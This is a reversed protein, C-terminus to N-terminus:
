MRLNFNILKQLEIADLTGDIQGFATPVPSGDLDTLLHLLQIIYKVNHPPDDLNHGNNPSNVTMMGSVMQDTLLGYNILEFCAKGSISHAIIVVRAYGGTQVRNLVDQIQQAYDSVLSHGNLFSNSLSIKVIGHPFSTPEVPPTLNPNLVDWENPYEISSSSLSPISFRSELEDVFNDWDGVNNPSLLVLCCKDGSTGLDGNVLSWNALDPTSPLEQLGEIFRLMESIMDRNKISNFHSSQVKEQYDFLMTRGHQQSSTNSIGDGITMYWDYDLLGEIVYQKSFDALQNKVRPSQEGLEFIVDALAVAWTGNLEREISATDIKDDTFLNFVSSLENEFVRDLGNTSNPGSPGLWLIFEVKTSKSTALEIAYPNEYTGEGTLKNPIEPYSIVPIDDVFSIPWGFGTESLNPISGRILGNVWRFFPFIFPEGGFSEDSFVTEFFERMTVLPDTFLSSWDLIPWDYPLAFPGLIPNENGPYMALWDPNRTIRFPIGDFPVDDRNLRKLLSQYISHPSLRFFTSLFYGLSGGKEMLVYSILLQVGENQILKNNPTIDIFGDVNTGDGILGFLGDRTDFGLSDTYLGIFDWNLTITYNYDIIEDNIEDYENVTFNIPSAALTNLANTFSSSQISEGNNEPRISGHPGVFSKGSWMFESLKSLPLKTGAVTAGADDSGDTTVLDNAFQVMDPAISGLRPENVSFCAGFGDGNRWDISFTFGSVTFFFDPKGFIPIPKYTNGYDDGSFKIMDQLTTSIGVKPLFAGNVPVPTNIDNSIDFDLLGVDVNADLHLHKRVKILAVQSGVGLSVRDISGSTVKSCSLYFGPISKSDGITIKYPSSTTGVGSYFDTKGSPMSPAPIGLPVALATELLKVLAEQVFLWAKVQDSGGYWAVDTDFLRTYYKTIEEIPNQVLGLLDIRMGDDRWKTNSGDHLDHRPEVLGVLSGVWTLVNSERLKDSITDLLSDLATDLADSLSSSSSLDVDGYSTGGIIVNKLIVDPDIGAGRNISVAIRFGDIKVNLDSTQGPLRIDSNILPPTSKHIDLTLSFEEFFSIPDGSGLPISIFWGQLGGEFQIDSTSHLGSGRLGLHLVPFGASDNSLAILFPCTFNSGSFLDLQLPDSRTLSGSVTNNSGLGLMSKIRNLYETAITPTALSLLWTEIRQWALSSDNALDQILQIIDLRPWPPDNPQPWGIPDALGLLPLLDNVFSGATIPLFSVLVDVLQDALGSMGTSLSMFDIELDSFTLGGDQSFDEITLLASVNSSSGKGFSSKLLIRSAEMTTGVVFPGGLSAEIAIRALIPDIASPNFFLSTPTVASGDGALHLLPVVLKCNLQKSVIELNNIIFGIGLELTHEHDNTGSIVAGKLHHIVLNASWNGGSAPFEGSALPFWEDERRDAPACQSPDVFLGDTTSRHYSEPMALFASLFNLISDTREYTSFLNMAKDLSWNNIDLNDNADLLGLTSLLPKVTDM